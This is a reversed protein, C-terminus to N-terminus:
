ELSEAYSIHEGSAVLLIRYRAAALAFQGFLLLLALLIVWPSLSRLHVVASSPDIRGFAYWILAASLGLKVVLVAMKRGPSGASTAADSPRVLAPDDASARMLGGRNGSDSRVGRRGANRDHRRPAPGPARCQLAVQFSAGCADRRRVGAPGQDESGAAE